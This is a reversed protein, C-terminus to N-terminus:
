WNLARAKKKAKELGYAVALTKLNLDRIAWRKTEGSYDGTILGVRRGDVHVSWIAPHRCAAMERSPAYSREAKQLKRIEVVGNEQSQFTKLLETLKRVADKAEELTYGHNMFEDVVAQTEEQRTM